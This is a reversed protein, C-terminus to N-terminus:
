GAVGGAAAFHEGDRLERGRIAGRPQAVEDRALSALHCQRREGAVDLDVDDDEVAAARHDAMGPWLIRSSPPVPSAASRARAMMSRKPSAPASVLESAPRVACGIAIGPLRRM